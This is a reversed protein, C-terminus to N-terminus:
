QAVRPGTTGGLFAEAAQPTDACFTSSTGDPNRRGLVVHQHGIRFTAQKLREGNPLTVMKVEPQSRETAARVAAMIAPSVAANRTVPESAPPAGGGSCGALFCLAVTSRLFGGM